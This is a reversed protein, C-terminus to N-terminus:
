NPYRCSNPRKWWEDGGSGMLFTYSYRLLMVAEGSLNKKGWTSNERICFWLGLWLGLGIYDVTGRTGQTPYFNWAIKLKKFYDKVRIPSHKYIITSTLSYLEIPSTYAGWALSGGRGPRSNGSFFLFLEQSTNMLARINYYLNFSNNMSTSICLTALRPKKSNQTIAM